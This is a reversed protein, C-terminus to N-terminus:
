NNGRRVPNFGDPMSVIPSNIAKLAEKNQAVQLGINMIDAKLQDELTEVYSFVPAVPLDSWITTQAAAAHDIVLQQGDRRAPLASRFQELAWLRKQFIALITEGAQIAAEIQKRIVSADAQQSATFGSM